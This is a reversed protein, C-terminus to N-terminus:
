NVFQVFILPIYVLVVLILIAPFFLNPRWIQSLILCIKNTKDRIKKTILPKNIVQTHSGHSIYHSSCLETYSICLNSIHQGLWALLFGPQSYDQTICYENNKNKILLKM